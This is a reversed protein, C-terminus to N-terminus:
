LWLIKTLIKRAQERTMLHGVEKLDAVSDLIPRTLKSKLSAPDKYFHALAFALYDAPQTLITSEKPVFGWRALKPLGANTKFREDSSKLVAGFVRDAYPQYETQQEFIFEVRDSAPIFLLAEIVLPYLATCWSKANREHLTGSVLDWYDSARVGSTLPYL